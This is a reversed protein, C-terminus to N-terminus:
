NDLASGIWTARACEPMLLMDGLFDPHLASVGVL